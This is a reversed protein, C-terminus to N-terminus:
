VCFDPCVSKGCGGCQGLTTKRVSIVGLRRIGMWSLLPTPKDALYQTKDFVVLCTKGNNLVCGIYPAVVYMIEELLESSFTFQSYQPHYLDTLTISWTPNLIVSKRGNKKYSEECDRIISEVVIACRQKFEYEDHICAKLSTKIPPKDPIAPKWCSNGM